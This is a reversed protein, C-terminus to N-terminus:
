EALGGAELATQRDGYDTASVIRGNRFVIVWASPVDAEVGSGQGRVRLTGISLVREDGLDRIDELELRFEAFSQETDTWWERVSDHGKYVGQIQARLPAFSVDPDMSELVAEIDGRNMAATVEQVAKVNPTSM